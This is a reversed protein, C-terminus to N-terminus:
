LIPCDDWLSFMTEEDIVEYPLSRGCDILKLRNNIASYGENGDLLLMYVFLKSNVRKLILVPRTEINEPYCEDLIAAGALEVKVNRNRQSFVIQREEIEGFEGTAKMEQVYIKDGPKLVFYKELLDVTFHVQKSRNGARPVLRILYANDDETKNEFDTDIVAQRKNRSADYLETGSVSPIRVDENGFLKNKRSRKRNKISEILTKRQRIEEVVYGNDMLEELLKADLKKSCPSELNSYMSYIDNLRNNSAVADEGELNVMMSLEHNSFLGGATLNNSGIAYWCKDEASLWYCKIHFTQLLNESHFVFIENTLTLLQVLADYTTNQQDVGVVCRVRGGQEIFKKMYPAIRYIGSLKAYAVMITLQSYQNSEIAEILKVGLQYENPQNVIM